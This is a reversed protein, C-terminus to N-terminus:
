GEKSLVLLHQLENESYRSILNFILVTLLGEIVSLPLQTVAFVGMFKALSVIFGGQQAPFAVALQTATTVYTMLNGLTAGLFVALSVSLGLKRILKYVGYAVFAGVVAMSFLNAGLTTIGGHALLVAQFILVICGLVVMPWPGFLIAGLGIGTPHSSSGTLSPLKLSSLVFIFAGAVALLIKVGAGEEKALRRLHKIGFALFPLIVLWWLGAWKFPLFGEAIHMAYVRESYYFLGILLYIGIVLINNKNKM